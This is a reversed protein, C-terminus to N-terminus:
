TIIHDATAFADDMNAPDSTMEGCVNGYRPWEPLGPAPAFTAWDEHVLPAGAELAADISAVPTREEVSVIVDRAARRATALSDAVVAAVPEGEYHITNSAFLPQDDLALGSRTNPAQEATVIARVGPLAAAATTDIGVVRGAAVTSRVLAAYLTGALEFDVGYVADGRVKPEADYRPVSRGVSANM